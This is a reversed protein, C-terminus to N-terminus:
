FKNILGNNCMRCQIYTTVFFKNYLEKFEWTNKYESFVKRLESYCYKLAEDFIEYAEENMNIKDIRKWVNIVKEFIDKPLNAKNNSNFFESNIEQADIFMLDPELNLKKGLKFNMIAIYLQLADLLNQNNIKLYSKFQKYCIENSLFLYFNNMLKPNFSYSTSYRYSYSMMLPIIGNIIFYLYCVALSIYLCIDNKRDIPVIELIAIFNSYLFWIVFCSIIEFRLKQKLQNVCIKYVFSLLIMHQIFNIGLWIFSNASEFKLDQSGEYLFKATIFEKRTIILNVSVLIASLLIFIVLMIKINLKEQFRYRDSNSEQLDFKYSKIECCIIIRRFRLCFPIIILFYTIYYFFSCIKKKDHDLFDTLVIIVTMCLNGIINLFLLNPSRISICTFAKRRIIMICCAVYIIFNTILIAITPTLNM